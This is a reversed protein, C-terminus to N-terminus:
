KGLFIRSLIPIHYIILMIIFSLSWIVLGGLICWIGQIDKILFLLLPHFLYIGIGCSSLISTATYLFSANTKDSFLIRFLLFISLNMLFGLISYENYLSQCDSGIIERQSCSFVFALTIAIVFTFCATICIKKTLKITSLYYGLVFYLTYGVVFHMNTSQIVTYLRSLSEFKGIYPLLITFLISLLIYYILLNSRKAIEYLFPTIAYLAILTYIFWTHYQGFLVSKLYVNIITRPTALNSHILSCMDIFGYILMWSIYLIVIKKISHFFIDKLNREKQLMGMGSCMFFIPVGTRSLMFIFNIINWQTGGIDLLRVWEYSISHQVVILITAFVKICNVWLLRTHNDIMKTNM